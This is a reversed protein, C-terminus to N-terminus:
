TQELGLLMSFCRAPMHWIRLSLLMQSSGCVLDNRIPSPRKRTNKSKLFGICGLVMMHCMCTLDFAHEEQSASKITKWSFNLQDHRMKM